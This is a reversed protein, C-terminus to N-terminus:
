RVLSSQGGAGVSHLKDRPQQTGSLNKDGTEGHETLSIVAVVPFGTDWSADPCVIDLCLCTNKHVDQITELALREYGRVNATENLLATNSYAFVNLRYLSRLPGTLIDM